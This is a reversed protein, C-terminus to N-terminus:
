NRPLSLVSTLDWMSSASRRSMAGLQSSPAGISRRIARRAVPSRRQSDWVVAVEVSGPRRSGACVGIGCCRAVCRQTEDYLLQGTNSRIAGLTALIAPEGFVVPDEVQKVNPSALEVRRILWVLGSWGTGSDVDISSCCSGGASWDLVNLMWDGARRGKDFGRVYGGLHDDAADEWIDAVDIGAGIKQDLEARELAKNPLATGPGTNFPMCLYRIVGDVDRAKLRAPSHWQPTDIWIGLGTGGRHARHAWESNEFTAAQGAQGRDLAHAHAGVSKVIQQM